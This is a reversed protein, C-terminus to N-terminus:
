RGAAAAPASEGMLRPLLEEAVVRDVGAPTFPALADAARDAYDRVPDDLAARVDLGDDVLRADLARALPLAAYPGAAANTVLVCGDALAELQAIGYDERRPATVFVRARRLLARYEARPVLGTFRVAGVGSAGARDLWERGAAEDLGAVVLAEGARADRAWAALVRDLGKKEPNAGYTIAAIDKREPPGSPAVPVPVIVAGARPTPAEDLGGESWPVLLPTAQFRRAEVPRQWLGHRGPRNGAAPADFRIAGPVPGLLAATTSSYVVARPNHERVALVAARRANLAWALELAAYTRLEPPRRTRALEVRAGARRLSAALEEDAERLGATGGLSVIM